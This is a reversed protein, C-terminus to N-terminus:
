EDQKEKKKLWPKEDAAKFSYIPRIHRVVECTAELMPLIDDLGKYAMPSEDITEQCVCSSWIGDMENRFQDLTLTEDAAKRSMRRGAGHPASMNYDPNGRGTCILAGDKMSIPIILREGKHARIAGKRIMRDEMDIYNHVSEFHEHDDLGSDNGFYGRIIRETILRRNLCAYEHAIRADHLYDEMDKGELWALDKDVVDLKKRKYEAKLKELADQIEGRRGETKYSAIIEDRKAYYSAMDHNVIQDAKDQYYEAIQKGLNRSGTHILLYVCGEEDRDLEIFHNGGGLTGISREIRKTDKLVRFCKLEQLLPFRAIRSEHVNMGAPVERRVVEDFRAFDIDVKGLVTCSVGCSIDVGVLSPCVRGGDITQTYGIVCGKGAHADPMIAIREGEVFSADCLAKIQELAADEILSAYVAAEGHAGLVVVPATKDDTKLMKAEDERISQFIRRWDKRDRKETLSFVVITMATCLVASVLYMVAESFMCM